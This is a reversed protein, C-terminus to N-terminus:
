TSLKLQALAELGTICFDIQNRVDINAKGLMAEMSAICFEEDDVVMIRNNKFTELKNLLTLYGSSM